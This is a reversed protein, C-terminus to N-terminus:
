EIKGLLFDTTVEFYDALEILTKVDPANRAKRINLIKPETFKDLKALQYATIGDRELLDTLTEGIYATLDDPPTRKVVPAADQTRGLLYDVSTDFTDAIAILTELSPANVANRFRSVSAANIDLITALGSQTVGDRKMLANVNRGITRKLTHPVIQRAM